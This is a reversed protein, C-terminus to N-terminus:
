KVKNKIRPELKLLKYQAVKKGDTRSITGVYDVYAIFETDGDRILPDTMIWNVDEQALNYNNFNAHWVDLFYIVPNLNEFRVIGNADTYGEVVANTQFDWDDMTPYLIVSADAIRYHDYYEEVIVTLATTMVEITVTVQDVVRLGHFAKMRVVYNGAQTYYHSTYPGESWTNDGFDWEFRDAKYSSTITFDVTEFVEVRQSSVIFDAYPDKECSMFFILLAPLFPIIRKM